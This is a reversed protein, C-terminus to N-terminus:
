QLLALFAEMEADMRTGAGGWVLMHPLDSLKGGTVERVPKFGLRKYYIVLKRHIEEDDNIALIEAKCCGKSFGYALVAKALVRGLGMPGIRVDNSGKAGTCLKKIRSNYIRMTDCHMTRLAPIVFGDSEGLLPGELNGYHCTVKYFPGITDLKLTVGSCMIITFPRQSLVHALCSQETVRFSNGALKSFARVPRVCPFASPYIQVV